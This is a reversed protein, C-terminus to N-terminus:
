IICWMRTEYKIDCMCKIRCHAHPEFGADHQTDCTNLRLRMGRRPCARESKKHEEMKLMPRLIPALKEPLDASHARMARM